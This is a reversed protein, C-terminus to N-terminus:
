RQGMPVGVVENLVDPALAERGLGSSLHVFEVRNARSILRRLQTDAPGDERLLEAVRETVAIDDPGSASEM